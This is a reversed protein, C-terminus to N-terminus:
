RRLLLTVDGTVYFPKGNYFTGIAKFAYVDQKCVKGEFYGDWGINVDDSTFILEGWRTYIQLLYKDVGEHYPHFIDNATSTLSYHGGSSEDQNPFFANPYHIYGEGEVTIADPLIMTDVCDHVSWATLTIDYTGVETYQYSPEEETSTGGDGFDWLYQDGFTTMNFLYIPEDPLMVLTPKVIFHAHPRPYVEVQEYAYDVGGDGTVRLTV